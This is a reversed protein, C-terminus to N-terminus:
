PEPETPEPRSVLYACVTAFLIALAILLVSFFLMAFRVRNFPPADRFEVLGPYIAAYEVFVFIAGFMALLLITDSIQSSSEGLLLSPTLLLLVILFARATAGPLQSIM